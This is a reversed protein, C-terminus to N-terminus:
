SVFDRVSNKQQCYFSHDKMEEKLFVHQLFTENSKTKLFM